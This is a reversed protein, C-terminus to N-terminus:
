GILIELVQPINLGAKVAPPAVAEVLITAGWFADRVTPTFIPSCKLSFEDFDSVTVSDVTNSGQTDTGSIGVMLSTAVGNKMVTFRYEPAEQLDLNEIDVNTDGFLDGTDINCGAYVYQFADTGVTLTLTDLLTTRASNSYIKCTLTTGTRDITLYYMTGYDFSFNAIDKNYTSGDWYVLRLRKTPPDCLDCRYFNVGFFKNGVTRQGWENSLANSLMWTSCLSGDGSSDVTKIDIKHEFDGTFHGVGKDKYLYADESVSRKALIDVHTATTQIRDDPEVQTYTEFDEYLTGPSGSLRVHLNKLTVTYGSVGQLLERRGAEAGWPNSGMLINYLTTTDDLDDDSGGLVLSEGSTGALFVMGWCTYTTLPTNAPTCRLSIRDFASVSVTNVTDSGSKDTGSITVELSTAVGNKMLTFTLSKGVGPASHVYVHLKKITGSTSVIEERNTLTPNWTYAGACFAYEADTNSPINTRSTGLILSEDTVSGEFQTTCDAYCSAPTNTPVAKIALRDGASVSVDHATDSGQTATDSITVTLSQEVDNKLLTFTRSKGSGPAATLNVRLNRITGPTGVIQRAYSNSSEWTYGGMLSAYRTSYASLFAKANGLLVQKM